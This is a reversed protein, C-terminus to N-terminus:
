EVIIHPASLLVAITTILTFATFTILCFRDIVMAAFKWDMIIEEEDDRGKIRNTIFKLEKLICQLERNATASCSHSHHGSAALAGPYPSTPPAQPMYKEQEMPNGNVRVFGSGSSYGGGAVSMPRSPPVVRFDDDMDLVNALLSKSSKEKMELEKMRNTMLITKRTIPKGPRNMRLLWPMWQLFLTRVWHPMEHTEATRHHYNLVVVTLVVSSAVMMMICNFYTGILPVADSTTPMIASVLNMFVTLSLLVTVDLTLKEGSDPPLTFGLLAMSSILVCPVILNFFYYLTRRRIHIKFTIDVYPEPCCEYFVESRKGPVGILDWEGNTIFSSIDGGDKDKMALDLKWGSYTWSGFKLDCHQDDFPFWTIDIKCTSKFIGPPIYLCGGDHSVVVNTQFTGDFREDASNYMLLDPVWLRKPHIRVGDVNGYESQNWGLNYDNWNLNLWCNSTLIQNKEDVDIIQQLTIGFTLLLPDSENVVPREMPNYSRLLDDLLKKEYYGCITERLFLLILLISLINRGMCHSTM